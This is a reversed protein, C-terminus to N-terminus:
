ISRQHGDEFRNLFARFKEGFFIDLGRAQLGFQEERMQELQRAHFQIQIEVAHEAGASVSASRSSTLRRPWRSGSWCMVPESRKAAM